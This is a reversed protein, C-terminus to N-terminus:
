GTDPWVQASKFNAREHGGKVETKHNPHKSEFNFSETNSDPTLMCAYGVEINILYINYICVYVCMYM